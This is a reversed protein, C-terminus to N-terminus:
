QLALYQVYTISECKKLSLCWGLTHRKATNQSYGFGALPINKQQTKVIALVITFFLQPKSSRV